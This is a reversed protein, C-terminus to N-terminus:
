FLLIILLIVAVLSLFTQALDGTTMFDSPEDDSISMGDFPDWTAFETAMTSKLQTIWSSNEDNRGQTKIGTIKLSVM